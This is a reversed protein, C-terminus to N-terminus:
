AKKKPQKKRKVYGGCTKKGKCKCEKREKGEKGKGKSEKVEFIKALKPKGTTEKKPRPKQSKKPKPDIDSACVENYREM